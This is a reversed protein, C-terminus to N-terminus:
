RIYLAGLRAGPGLAALLYAVLEPIANAIILTVVTIRQGIFICAFFAPIGPPVTITAAIVTGTLTFNTIVVGVSIAFLM